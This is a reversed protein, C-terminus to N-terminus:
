ERPIKGELDALKSDIKMILSSLEPIHSITNRHMRLSESNESRREILRELEPQVESVRIQEASISNPILIEPLSFSNSVDENKLYTRLDVMSEQYAKEADDKAEHMFREPASKGRLGLIYGEKHGWDVVYAENSQEDFDFDLLLAGTNSILRHWVSKPFEDNEIWKEPQPELFAYINKKKRLEQTTGLRTNPTLGQKRNIISDYRDPYAYHFLKM